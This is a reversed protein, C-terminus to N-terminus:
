QKSSLTDIETLLNITRTTQPSDGPLTACVRTIFTSTGGNEVADLSALIDTSYFTTGSETIKYLPATPFGNEPKCDYAADSGLTTLRALPGLLYRMGPQAPTIIRSLYSGARAYGSGLKPATPAAASLGTHSATALLTNQLDGWSADPHHSRALALLGSVYPTAFSTGSIGSVYAATPNAQTWTPARMDEGPALIDLNTGYNSFSSPQNAANQSGVAFVEPYRAPYVLCDCGDNGSAAVVISGKNLAYQVAQRLYPDEEDAGLSISIVDVNQDAAYYVARAVTLTNGYGLDDIAQLPLIKATWNVGAIGKGNNGTAALIGTTRTGHTTGSGGPDVEGAQVNADNNAFDWGTVDDSYGNSDDDILNCAKDLPKEQDTCNRRSPNQLTTVGSENDMIGDYNDDILNCSRNLAVSQDTCNLRSASESSTTGQEGSNIAWRGSFEEHQLAFGTDIIAVTTPQAGAGISWAADMDTATTWWQAGNPDNTALTRYTRLPYSLSDATFSLAPTDIKM